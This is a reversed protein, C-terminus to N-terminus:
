EYNVGNTKYIKLYEEAMTESSFAKAHSTVETGHKSRLNEDYYYKEFADAIEKSDVNTLIASNRDLMDPVGGVATAVIPLGTGMAEILTMPIGEYNSPLTFMDADHLFHYVNNQLGLFKVYPILDNDAVYKETEARKEGDGILWLESDSHKEHFIQFAQLLGIHNKQESFRGIHLIKFNGVYDYNDKLICRSLDIGNLIVPIRCKEIGYEEVITDRILESLAVPIVHFHKFFFKNLKRALKGNEKEAVNHVTHVRHKVGAFIAAPIAYQACYRHTHVVDAKTESLIRRIKGIMSLDIGAKKHLYRVDVGAKELRETISSHYEYMSIVTVDHGLKCLEYTLNECMTEAGALGFEPM